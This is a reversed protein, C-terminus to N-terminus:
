EINQIQERMQEIQVKLEVSAQTTEMDNAKSGLTNAERNFEQMLFDLRRGVPEDRQLCALVEKVHGDLRDLEEAVDLKQAQLALEQELRGPELDVGLESIRTRLRERLATVVEPRRARVQAVQETIARCRSELLSHIHAGERARHEILADLAEDLLNLASTHVPQLDPESQRVVGPWRLIEMASMRAANMMWHEVKVVKTILEKALDDNIELTSDTTDAKRFRLNCEVKGRGLRANVRERVPGELARLEDPLRTSVDLYRHNVSRLEWALTGIDGSSECRAFGTMSRIM